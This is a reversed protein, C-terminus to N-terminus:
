FVGLNFQVSHITAGSTANVTVAYTGPPTPPPPPPPQSNSSGGGCSVCLAGLLITLLLKRRRTRPVTLLFLGGTTMGFMAFVLSWRPGHIGPYLQASPGNTAVTLNTSGTTSLSAPSFVCKAGPPLGSCAFSVTGTFGDLDTLSVTMANSGGPTQISLVTTSPQISFDPQITIAIAAATSAVYNTDGSYNATITYQGNALQNANLTASTVPGSPTNTTQVTASGLNNSGSFFMVSGTPPDGLSATNITATLNAGQPAGASALATNTSAQAITFNVASSTSMKFSSDGPYTATISHQGVAFFNALNLLATNGESNLAYPGPNINPSSDAFTVSGTPVGNGSLGAVDARVYVFSGYAGGTFPHGHQDFANLVTTSNEATISVNIPTSAPSPAFTANGGYQGTLSYIGGPLNNFSASQSSLGNLTIVGVGLGTSGNNAIVAVDGDTPNSANGSVAATITFSSGHAGTIAAPGLTTTTASFSTSNWNAVLENVNVSGLGTALDYGTAALFGTQGPVTNNGVTVDNFVCSSAPLTTTSSANCQSFSSSEKAALNYLTYNAQGQPGFKEDVLAMIGAFSPSSASTGGVLFLSIFGNSDPICSGELCLIYPDHGGAATLSLDPEDRAGDSPIGTVGFQWTPKPKFYLSVGGGSSFLNPFECASCGENWVDEPIYSLASGLNQPNNQGAWYKSNDGNENFETGGVVVNFSTGLVNVSPGGLAPATNPDDCGAAGSDGSSVMYTIGQAAAQEALTSLALAESQGAIVDCSGFSETMIPALNNDIIYLESLDVGDTTDTSASVVFDVTAAPAIASSWTADLTAEAEEAGGLDGPDPGDPIIQVGGCCVPDFIQQFNLVDQGFQFLNSRAVVAIKAGSGYGVSAYVPNINYITAYDAPSLAFIPGNPGNLTTNPRKGAIYKTIIKDPSIHVGPRKRFDHLSWVGAVAPALASPIQPDSANAWHEEGNVAYKHISTHLAEEVQAETGTFEIVSRGHSVRNIQFGHSQLWATVIQLDQDAPGFQAGFEDPTLWKHYHPSTKDQQNDLLTRLLHEQEPSRKLVLLMRNLPLNPPAAGVDFKPQALPHTNGKLTTLESEVLPRTILPQPSVQQAHGTSVLICLSITLSSIRSLHTGM